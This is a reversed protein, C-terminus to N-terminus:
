RSRSKDPMAMGMPFVPFRYYTSQYLSGNVFFNVDFEYCISMSCSISMQFSFSFYVTCVTTQLEKLSFKSNMM